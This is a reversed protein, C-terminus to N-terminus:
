HIHCVVLRTFFVGRDILYFFISAQILNSAGEHLRRASTEGLSRIFSSPWVGWCCFWLLLLLIPARMGMFM